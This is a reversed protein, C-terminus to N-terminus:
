CVHVGLQPAMSLGGAWRGSVVKDHPSDTVQTYMGYNEYNKNNTPAM